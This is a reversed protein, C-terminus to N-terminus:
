ERFRNRRRRRRDLASEERVFLGRLLPREDSAERFFEVDPGGNLSAAQESRNDIAQVTRQVLIERAVPKILVSDAGDDIM